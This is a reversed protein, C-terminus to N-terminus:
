PRPSSGPPACWVSHYVSSSILGNEKQPASQGEEPSFTYLVYADKVDVKAM